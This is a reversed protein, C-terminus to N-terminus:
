QRTYPRDLGSRKEEEWRVAACLERRGRELLKVYEWEGAYM